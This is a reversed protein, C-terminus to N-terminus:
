PIDKGIPFTGAPDIFVPISWGPTKEKYETVACPQCQVGSIGVQRYFDAGNPGPIEVDCTRCKMIESM